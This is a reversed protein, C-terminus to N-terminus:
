TVSSIVRDVSLAMEETPDMEQGSGTEDQTEASQPKLGSVLEDLGNLDCDGSILLGKVSKSLLRKAAEPYVYKKLDRVLDDRQKKLTQVDMSLSAEKGALENVQVQLAENENKLKRNEDRTRLLEQFCGQWQENLQTLRSRLGEGNQAATMLSNVDISVFASAAAEKKENSRNYETLAHIRDRVPGSRRFCHEDARIGRDAAFRALNRFSLRSTDGNASVYLEDTLSVLLEDPIAKVRAM